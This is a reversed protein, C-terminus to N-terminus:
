GAESTFAEWGARHNLKGREGGVVVPSSGSHPPHVIYDEELKSAQASMEEDGLEKFQSILERLLIITTTLRQQGDIVEFHDFTRLGGRTKKDTEKLLITGFYHKREGLYRLDDWLDRLNEEEWAYGRQFIPIEFLWGSLLLQKLSTLTGNM